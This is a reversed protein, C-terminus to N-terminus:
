LFRSLVQKRATVFTSRLEPLTQEFAEKPLSAQTQLGLKTEISALRQGHTSVQQGIWGLYTVLIGIVATGLISLMTILPVNTSKPQAHTQLLGEIRAIRERTGSSQTELGKIREDQSSM